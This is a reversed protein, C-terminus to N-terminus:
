WEEGKEKPMLSFLYQTLDELEGKDMVTEWNNMHLPPVPGRPDEPVTQRGKLIVKKLEEPTFGEAVRNLPPVLGGQANANKVGGRGGAGHCTACGYRTFVKEGRLIGTRLNEPATKGIELYQWVSVSKLGNREGQEGNWVAFAIPIRQGKRLPPDGAWSRRLVVRWRGDKWLGKGQVPEEDSMTLTGFGQASLYDVPTKRGRRALPNGAGEAARYLPDDGPFKGNDTALRPRTALTGQWGAEVDKQAAASWRWIVVPNAADGMFPSPWTGAKAPFEVAVADSIAEAASNRDNPTADEWELRLALGEPDFLAQLSLSRVSGGGRPNVLAQPMLPVEAARAKKWAPDAPDLSVSRDAEVAPVIIEASRAAPGLLVAWLWVIIFRM